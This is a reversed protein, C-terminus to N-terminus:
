YSTKDWNRLWCVRFAVHHGLHGIQRGEKISVALLELLTDVAIYPWSKSLGMFEGKPQEMLAPIRLEESLATIIPRQSNHGLSRVQLILVIIVHVRYAKALFSHLIDHLNMSGSKTVLLYGTFKVMM